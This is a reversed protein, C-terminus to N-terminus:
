RSLGCCPRLAPLCSISQGEVDIKIFDPAGFCGLLDDLRTTAVELSGGEEGYHRALFTDHTVLSGTAGTLPDTAFRASGSHDSAALPLITARTVLHRVTRHLLALNDPDPELLLAHRQAMSSLFTWSYWGINAGVDWLRLLHGVTAASRFADNLAAEARAGLLVLSAHRVCRLWIPFPVGRFRWPLPLDVGSLLAAGLPSRRLRFLPHFRARILDAPADPAPVHKAAIEAAAQRVQMMVLCHDIWQATLKEQVSNQLLRGRLVPFSVVDLPQDQNFCSFVVRTAGTEPDVHTQLCQACIEKMMCQM